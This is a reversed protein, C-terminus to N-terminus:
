YIRKQITVLTFDDGYDPSGSHETVAQIIQRNFQELPKKHYNNQVLKKLLPILREYGFEIEKSDTEEIIGDTFLLLIDGPKFAVRGPEYRSDDIFGILRGPKNLLEVEGTDHHLLIQEPHGASAFVIEETTINCLFSTFINKGKLNHYTFNNIYYLRKDPDVLKLSQNNVIDIQMTFLAAQIGHGTADAVMVSLAGNDLVEVNYYDGGVKKNHPIYSVEINFNELSSYFEKDTLVGRLMTNVRALLERKDFPKVLYDNAGSEFGQILDNILRKATLMIVPLENPNYKKRIERCVEYGSLRPMMVDLLVLDPKGKEMIQDLAEMGNSAETVHYKFPMFHNRLVQLNVPDDDVILINFSSLENNKEDIDNVSTRNFNINELDYELKSVVRQTNVQHHESVPITFTFSSGKGTESVLGITGGHLEVLKRTIALGLGTGGYERETSGDGQEFSNFIIEHKDSPIGIGSDKVTVAIMDRGKEQIIEASVEVTGEKTFKIANGVLNYLIQQLRNEDGLAPPLNYDIRNFLTIPRTGTLTRSLILVHDVMSYIDISQRMIEIDSNKMKAFDLIDNVLNSLRRASSEILKLNYKHTDSLEGMSGDGMSETLGIIGNLPTRLEHSTNALFEDKLQDMAILQRNAQQLEASLTEATEFAMTFRHALLYSQSLIYFVLGYSATNMTNIVQSNYLIDNIGTLYLVAMGIFAVIAGDRKRYVAISLVALILLGGLLIFLDYFIKGESYYKLPLSIILAAIILAISIIPIMIKKKMEYPFVTYFFLVILPIMGYSSLYEIKSYMEWNISPFWAALYREGMVMSRMGMSMTLISFVLASKERPRLFFIGLHYLMMILIVGLVLFALQTNREREAKILVEPGLHISEWLGGKKHHFNSVQVVIDVTGKNSGKDAPNHFFVTRPLYQPVGREASVEGNESLLEGNVWLKYATAADLIKLGIFPSSGSVIVKLRYTAYGNGPLPAMPHEIDNWISPVQVFVPNDLRNGGSFDSPTYLKKWYFEWEGDLAYNRHPAAQSLDLVGMEARYVPFDRSCSFLLLFILIYLPILNRKNM